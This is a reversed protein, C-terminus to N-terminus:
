LINNIVHNWSAHLFIGSWNRLFISAPNIVNNPIIYVKCYWSIALLISLFYTFTFFARYYIIYVDFLHFDLSYFINLYFSYKIFLKYM